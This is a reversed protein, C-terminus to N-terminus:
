KTVSKRLRKEISSSMRKLEATDKDAQKTLKEAHKKGRAQQFPIKKPAAKKKKAKKKLPKKAKSKRVAVKGAAILATAASKLLRSAM